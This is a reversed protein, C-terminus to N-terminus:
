DLRGEARSVIMILRRFETDDAAQKWFNIFRCVLQVNSAEYHGNSNVRDLSPLMNSDDHTGQFQLPLGTLARGCDYRGM